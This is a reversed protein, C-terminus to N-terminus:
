KQVVSYFCYRCPQAERLGQRLYNSKVIVQAKNNWFIFSSFYGIIINMDLKSIQLYERINWM